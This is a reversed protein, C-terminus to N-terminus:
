HKGKQTRKLFVTKRLNYFYTGMHTQQTNKKTYTITEAEVSPDLVVGLNKKQTTRLLHWPTQKELNTDTTGLQGKGPSIGKVRVPSLQTGQTPQNRPRGDTGSM